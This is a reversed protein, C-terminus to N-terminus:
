SISSPLLQNIVDIIVFYFEAFKGESNPRKLGDRFAILEDERLINEGSLLSDIAAKRRSNLYAGALGLVEIDRKADQDNYHVEGKLDYWFAKECAQNLPSYTIEQAGKAEDCHIYGKRQAKPKSTDKRLENEEKTARCSLLLNKYEGVLERHSEKPLVHEVRYQPDFPYELKMGCYCCVGGQESYMQEKLAPLTPMDRVTEYLQGGSKGSHVTQNRLSDEDLQLNALERKHLQVAPTDFHKEVYRM